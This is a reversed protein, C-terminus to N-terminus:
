VINFSDGYCSLNNLPRTLNMNQKVLISQALQIRDTQGGDLSPDSKIVQQRALLFAALYAKESGGNKPLLKQNVMQNIQPLADAGHNIATDYYEYKCIASYTGLQAAFSMAPGWYLQILITWTAQKWAVDNYKPLDTVLGQLGATSSTGNVQQLAPIYKVLPHNPNIKQLAQFVMLLDGTGSCFGCLGVTYGRGDGINEIYDYNLTWDVRDNEPISVLQLITDCQLLTMHGPLTSFPIQNVFSM